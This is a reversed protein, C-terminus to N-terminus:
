SKYSLKELKWTSANEVANSFKRDKIAQLSTKTSRVYKDKIDISGGM